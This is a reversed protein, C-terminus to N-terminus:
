LVIQFTDDINIVLHAYPRSLDISHCKHEEQQALLAEYVLRDVSSIYM